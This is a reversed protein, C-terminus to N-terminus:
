KISGRLRKEVDYIIGKIRDKGWERVVFHMEISKLFLYWGVRVAVYLYFLLGTAYVVGQVVQEEGTM